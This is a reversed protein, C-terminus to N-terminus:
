STHQVPRGEADMAFAQRINVKETPRDRVDTKVMGMNAVVKMGLFNLYLRNLSEHDMLRTQVKPLADLFRINEM